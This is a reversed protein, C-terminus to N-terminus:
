WGGRSQLNSVRWTRQDGGRAVANALPIYVIITSGRGPESEITLAGDLQAVREQMGILGLQRGAHANRRVTTIDFGVGNDEVIMLLAEARRQLIFSIRTAQAHKLINTLAEQALWYLVIEITPSFRVGDVDTTHLDVPVLTRASWQELYNALTTVLGFHDLGPPQLQLALMHMEDSMRLALMQIQSIHGAIPLYCGDAGCALLGQIRGIGVVWLAKHASSGYWRAYRAGHPDVRRARVLM